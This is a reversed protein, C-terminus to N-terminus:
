EFTSGLPKTRAADALHDAQARAPQGAQEAMAPWAPRRGAQEAVAANATARGTRRAEERAQEDIGGAILDPESASEGGPADVIHSGRVCRYPRLLDKVRQRLESVSWARDTLRMSAIRQWSRSPKTFRRLSRGSVIRSAISIVRATSSASSRNCPM